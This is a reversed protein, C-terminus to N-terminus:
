MSNGRSVHQANLPPRHSTLTSVPSLTIKKLMKIMWINVHRLIRYWKDLTHGKVTAVFDPGSVVMKARAWM